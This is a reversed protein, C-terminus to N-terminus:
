KTDADLHDYVGDGDTDRFVVVGDIIDIEESTPTGDGDDDADLYNPIFNFTTSEEIDFDTNDNALRGNGDIDELYSPIGDSDHDAPNVALLDIKFIIPSYAPITAQVNSYYALASPIFIMGIGYDKVEFSGDGNDDYGSGAKLSTIGHAFGPVLNPLDFWIPANSSDFVDGNLLTGEYKVYTSDAFTTSAGLGQRAILYYVKHAIEETGDTIGVNESKVVVTKFGFNESDKLSIKDSNAGAITDIEIKYDFEPKPNKFQEYNYFHTAFYEQLKAEDQVIIESIATPPIIEISTDDKKCSIITIAIILLYYVNRIKM